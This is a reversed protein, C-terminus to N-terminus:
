QLREAQAPAYWDDGAYTVRYTTTTKPSYTATLRGASDVTGTALLVEAGGTPQATIRLTKGTHWAGLQATVHALKKSSGTGRAVSLSLDTTRFSVAAPVSNAAAARTGDGAYTARYTCTGGPAAPDTVSWSGNPTTVASAQWGTSSCGARAVSVTAGALLGGGAALTGSLVVPSGAVTSSPTNMGLTTPVLGVTTTASAASSAYGPMGAYSARYTCTGVSPADDTVAYGGDPSTTISMSPHVTGCGSRHVTVTGGALGGTPTSLLGTVTVPTGASVTSPAVASLKTATLVTTSATTTVAPHIGNAAVTATYTFDGAPADDVFTARGRADTVVPPLDVRMGAGVRVLSVTLGATSTTGPYHLQATGSVPAGGSTGRSLQLTLTGEVPWVLVSTQARAADAARSVDYVYSGPGPPTDVFSFRGDADTRVSPLPVPAAGTAGRRVELVQGALPAGAVTALRGSVTTSSGPYMASPGADLTLTAADLSPVDLVRVALNTVHVDGTVAWVRLGDASVALGRPQLLANTSGFDVIRAPANLGQRYVYVDPEYASDLGAVFTEGDASWAGALPYRGSPFTGMKALKAASYITHEYPSGCATVVRAGDPASSLDRLNSCVSDVAAVLVPAAGTVDYLSLDTPSSWSDAAYVQGAPGTAVVPRYFPGSTVGGYSRGTAIDVVGLGGYSGGGGYTNCSHGYVLRNGVVAVDGPCQGTPLGITQTVTLTATDVKKLAGLGPLAVWLSRSDPTLAMGTAGPLGDVTRAAGGQLDTVRVGTGSRGASLFLRGHAEDLVIDAFSDMGLPAPGTDAVAPAALPVVTGALLAAALLLPRRRVKLAVGLCM